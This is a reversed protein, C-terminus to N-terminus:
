STEFQKKKRQKKWLKLQQQIWRNSLWPSTRSISRYKTSPLDITVMEIAVVSKASHRYSFFMDFLASGHDFSGCFFAKSAMSISTTESPDKIWPKSFFGWMVPYSIEDRIYRVFLWPGKKCQECISCGSDSSLQFLNTNDSTENTSFEYQQHFFDQV